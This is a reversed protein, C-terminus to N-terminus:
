GTGRLRERIYVYYWYVPGLKRLKQLKQFQRIKQGVGDAGVTANAHYAVLDRRPPWGHTRAAFQLPLFDWTAEVDDRLLHNLSDQDQFDPMSRLTALTDRYLREVAANCRMLVLGANVERDKGCREKQFWIDTGSEGLLNNLMPMPDDVFVIDVDSWIIASGSNSSISQLMLELKSEITRYFDESRFDGSGSIDVPTSHSELSAPLSPLFHRRYLVEHSPTHCSYIKM